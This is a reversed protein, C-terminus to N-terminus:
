VRPNLFWLASYYDFEDFAYDIRNNSVGLQVRGAVHAPAVCVMSLCPDALCLGSVVIDDFSCVLNASNVIQTGSVTVLTGGTIPGAAPSVSFISPLSFYRFSLTNSSFQQGNMTVDVIVSSATTDFCDPTARASCLPPVQCTMVTSTANIAPLLISRAPNVTSFRCATYPGMVFNTGTVTLTTNGADPSSTPQLFGLTSVGLYQFQQGSHSFQQGNLAVDFGVSIVSSVNPSFCQIIPTGTTNFFTGAAFGAVGFSCKIEGTDVFNLGQM